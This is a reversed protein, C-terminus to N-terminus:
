LVPDAYFYEETPNYYEAADPEPTAPAQPAPLLIPAEPQPRVVPAEPQPQQLVPVEPAPQVPAQPAPRSPAQPAPQVVPTPAQPPAPVYLDNILVLNFTQGSLTATFNIYRWAGNAKNVDILNVNAPDDWIRNIRVFQMADDGNPLTATVNLAAFPVRANVGGLQTWMRIVGLNALSQNNSNGNNFVGFGFTTQEAQTNRLLVEVTQSGFLTATFNIYRWAGDAKFVDILNVYDQDNWVRNIHVFEMACDGNPLTATVELEAYPVRANVGDLRTWLRVRNAIDSSQITGNNFVNLSFVPLAYQNNVLVFELTQGFQTVTLDIFRWAGNANNIDILNIYGQNNWIRNVNVFQMANDGNPFTATVELGAFPILSNVGDAQAWMRITGANYLDQNPRSASGGAGNNFIDFSLVPHVTITVYDSFDGDVTTATIVAVGPAVAVVYGDESVTAVTADSTSWAYYPHTADEPSVIAVLQVSGGTLLTIEDDGYIEIGSVPTMSTNFTAINLGAWAFENFRAHDIAYVAANNSAAHGFIRDARLGEVDAVLFGDPTFYEAADLARFTAPTNWFAAVGSPNLTGIAVQNIVPVPSFGNVAWISIDLEEGRNLGYPIVIEFDGYADVTGRVPQNDESPEGVVAWVALDAMSAVAGDAWVNSVIQNEIAYATWADAVTGTIILDENVSLPAILADVDVEFGNVELALLEPTSNSLYFPVLISSDWFWNNAQAHATLPNATSMNPTQRFIDMVIIYRGDETLTRVTPDSGMVSEERYQVYTGDFIVGRIPTDADIGRHGPFFRARNEPHGATGMTTGIINGQQRWNYNTLDADYELLYLDAYFGHTANLAVVLENATMNQANENTTIVPRYVTVNSVTAPRYHSVGAFPLRAVVEGGTSVIVYGQYFGHAAAGTDATPPIMLMAQFSQSQGAMITISPRSIMLMGGDRSGRNNAATMFEHHIQYTRTQNSNNTISANISGFRAAGNDEARNFGGFSFSGTQTTTTPQMESPVGFITPVQHYDVAVVTDSKVAALVDIQRAGDFVSYGPARGVSADTIAIATNMVRTKIEYNSWRDGHNVESYQQMLAIAGAVHPASMSTGQSNAFAFNWPRNLGAAPAGPVATGAWRPNASFVSTGHAGIEPKIEFSTEVPGTSSFTALNRMSTMSQSFYFTGYGAEAIAVAFPVGTANEMSFMPVNAAVDPNSAPDQNNTNVQIVGGFGHQRAVAAIDVFTHGRRVLVFHGQIEEAGRYAVLAAFEEPTGAGIPAGALGSGPAPSNVIPMAFIRYYGDTHVPNSPHHVTTRGPVETTNLRATLVDGNLAFTRGDVINGYASQLALAPTDNFASVTIAMSAGGPNGLTYFAQTNNGASIVFVIGPDSLMINNVAINQIVVSSGLMGGLSMNVVDVRDRYAWEIASIIVSNPTWGYLGRYHIGMAEPAVGLINQMPNFNPDNIDVNTRGLITGSVHTGHSSFGPITPNPAWSTLGTRVPFYLPSVEMPNNGPMGAPLTQPHAFVGPTAPAPVQGQTPNARLDDGLGGPWLRIIDRGVFVYEAPGENYIGTMIDVNVNLLEAQSIEVSRDGRNAMWEATPFSGAFAPHMWDIGSDIIGFLIGEGLIGQAHLEDANMAARGVLMGWPNPTNTPDAEGDFNVFDADMPVDEVVPPEVPLDPYIARVVSIYALEEVMNAPLSMAVGNLANRFELNIEYSPTAEMSFPTFPFLANLERRFTEHEDEVIQEAADLSLAFGEIQAELVQVPAPSNEFLVIVNVPENGAPLANYGEFGILGRNQRELQVEEFAQARDADLVLQPVSEDVAYAAQVPAIALTGLAMLVALSTATASRLKRLFNQKMKM